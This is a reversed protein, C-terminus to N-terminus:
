ETTVIYGTEGLDDPYLYLNAIEELLIDSFILAEGSSFVVKLDWGEASDKEYKTGLFTIKQLFGSRLLTMNQVGLLDESWDTKTMPKAYLFRIDDQCNNYFMFDKATRRIALAFPTGQSVLANDEGSVNSMVITVATADSPLRYAILLTKARDGHLLVPWKAEQLPEYGAGQMYVHSPFVYAPEERGGQVYLLFDRATLINGSDLLGQVDLYLSANVTGQPDGAAEDRPLFFLNRLTFRLHNEGDVATSFKVEACDALNEPLLSTVAERWEKDQIRALAAAAETQYDKGQEADGETGQALAAGQCLTLAAALCLALIRRKM